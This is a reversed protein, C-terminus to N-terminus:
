NEYTKNHKLNAMYVKDTGEVNTKIKAHYGFKDPATSTIVSVAVWDDNEGQFHYQEEELLKKLVSVKISGNYYKTQTM